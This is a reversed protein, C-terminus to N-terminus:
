LQYNKYDFLGSKFLSADPLERMRGINGQFYMPQAYYEQGDRNKMIHVSRFTNPIGASTLDYGMYEDLNYKSPNFVGLAVNCDQGINGTDKFDELMPALEVGDFKRREIGSLAKNFQCVIVPTYNFLNRQGIMYESLKDINEKSNFGREKKALAAHDTIIITYAEPDNPTYGIIREAQKGDGDIYQETHIHGTKKAYAFLDKNIGTPNEPDQIFTMYHFLQEMEVDVEVVRNYIEDSCWNSGKSLIYSSDVKLGYKEFLRYSTWKARKAYESIEFSFYFWKIKIPLNQKLLMFYPALVFNDDVFTSKGSGPLGGVAYYTGRQTNNLIRNFKDFANPLGKNMGARGERVYDLFTKKQGPKIIPSAPKPTTSLLEEVTIKPATSITNEEPKPQAQEPKQDEPKEEIM